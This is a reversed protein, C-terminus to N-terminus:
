CTMPLELRRPKGLCASLFQERTRVAYGVGGGLSAQRSSGTPDFFQFSLLPGNLKPECCALLGLIRDLDYQHPKSVRFVPTIM